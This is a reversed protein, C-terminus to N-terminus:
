GGRSRPMNNLDDYLTPPIGVASGDTPLPATRIRRNRPMPATNLNTNSEEHATDNEVENEDVQQEVSEEERRERESHEEIQREHRDNLESESDYSSDDSHENHDSRRGNASARENENHGRSPGAEQSDIIIPYNSQLPAQAEDQNGTINNIEVQFLDPSVLNETNSAGQFDREVSYPARKTQQRSQQQKNEKNSPANTVGTELVSTSRVQRPPVSPTIRKSPNIRAPDQQMQQLLKRKVSLPAPKSIRQLISQDVNVNMEFEHVSNIAITISFILLDFTVLVFLLIDLM